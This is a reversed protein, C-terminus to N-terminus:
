LCKLTRKETSHIGARSFEKNRAQKPLHPSCSVRLPYHPLEIERCPLLSILSGKWIPDKTCVGFTSQRERPASTQSNTELMPSCSYSLLLFHCRLKSTKRRRVLPNTSPVFNKIQTGRAIELLSMVTSIDANITTSNDM